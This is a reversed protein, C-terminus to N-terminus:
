DKKVYVNQQTAVSHGMVDADNEQEKNTKGYKETLYVHRIITSSISKGSSEFIKNLLKTLSNESLPKKQKNILFFGTKNHELWKSIAKNIIPNVPITKVGYLDSTKYAGLSFFRKKNGVLVLYNENKNKLKDYDKFKIVKMNAFDNRVPPMETYLLGTLYRQYLEIDKNTWEEKKDLRKEKIDRKIRSVIKKLEILTIWNKELKESKEQSQIKKNYENAISDLHNRYQDLITKNEVPHVSLGVLIASLYNKATVPKMTNLFEIVKKYYKKKLFDLTDFEIDKNDIAGYIKKLSIMYAKLSKPKINRIVNIQEELSMKNKNYIIVLYFFIRFNIM